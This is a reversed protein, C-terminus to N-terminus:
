WRARRRHNLYELSVSAWVVMDIATYLPVRGLPLARAPIGELQGGIVLYRVRNATMHAALLGWLALVPPSFIGVLLGLIMSIGILMPLLGYLVNAHTGFQMGLIVQNKLWRAQQRRYTAFTEQFYTQVRSHAAFRIRHGAALLSKALHFDTGTRVDAQLAGASELAARTFAANAGTLGDIYSGWRSRAYREKLWTQLVFPNRRLAAWPEYVGSVVSEGENLIPALTHEFAADSLLCDSDTLFLIDGSAHAYCRRLARQKGEGKAQELVIVQEGACRQAIAYTEDSGGACLILEKNPYRLTQVSEIHAQIMEAENWAAVLMSVKPYARLAPPPVDQVTLTGRERQILRAHVILLAVLGVLFFVSAYQSALAYISGLFTMMEVDSGARLPIGM